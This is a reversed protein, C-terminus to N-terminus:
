EGGLGSPHAGGSRERSLLRSWLSRKPTSVLGYDSLGRGEIERAVWHIRREPDYLIGPIAPDAESERYGDIELTELDPLADAPRQRALDVRPEDVGEWFAAEVRVCDLAAARQEESLSAPDHLEYLVVLGDPFRDDAPYCVLVSAWGPGDLLGLVETGGEPRVVASV